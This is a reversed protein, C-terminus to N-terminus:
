EYTFMYKANNERRSRQAQEVTSTPNFYSTKITLVNMGQQMRREIVLFFEDDMKLWVSSKWTWNECSTHKIVNAKSQGIRYLDLHNQKLISSFGDVNCDECAGMSEVQIWKTFTSWSTCLQAFTQREIIGGSVQLRHALFVTCVIATCILPCVPSETRDLNLSYMLWFQTLSHWLVAELLEHIEGQLCPRWCCFWQGTLVNMAESASEKWGSPASTPDTGKITHLPEPLNLCCIVQLMLKALHAVLHQEMQIPWSHAFTM